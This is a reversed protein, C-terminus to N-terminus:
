QAPAPQKATLKIENPKFVDRAPKQGTFTLKVSGDPNKAQVRASYAVGGEAVTVQDGIDAQNQDEAVPKEVDRWAAKGGAAKAEAEAAVKNNSKSPTFKGNKEVGWVVGEDLIDLERSEQALGFFEHGPLALSETVPAATIEKAANEMAERCQPHQSVRLFGTETDVTVWRSRLAESYGEQGLKEALVRPYIMAPGSLIVSAIESTKM